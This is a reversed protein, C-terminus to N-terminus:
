RDPSRPLVIDVIREPLDDTLPMGNLAHHWMMGPGAEAVMEVDTDAALDGREVASRILRRAHTRKTGIVSREYEAALDPNRLREVMLTLLVDGDDGQLKALLRRLMSALDARVDGSDPLSDDGIGAGARVAEVVLEAKSSYRRYITAKGVGARAAVGEISLSSYGDEVFSALTAALIAADCAPDRRRGPRSREERAISM